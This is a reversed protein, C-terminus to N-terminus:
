PYKWGVDKQAAVASRSLMEFDFGMSWKCPQHNDLGPVSPSARRM